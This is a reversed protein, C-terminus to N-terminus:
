RISAEIEKKADEWDIVRIEGREYADRREDLLDKHWQPVELEDPEPSIEAWVAELLALKEKMPLKRIEEKAIM